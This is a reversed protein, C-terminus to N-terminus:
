YNKFSTDEKLLLCIEKTKSQDITLLQSDRKSCTGIVAITNQLKVFPLKTEFSFM